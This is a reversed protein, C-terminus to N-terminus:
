FHRLRCHCQSQQAELIMTFRSMNNWQSCHVAHFLHKLHSAYRFQSPKVNSITIGCSERENGSRQKKSDLFPSLRTGNHTLHSRRGGRGFSLFQVKLEFPETQDRLFAGSWWSIFQGGGHQVVLVPCYSKSKRVVHGNLLGGGGDGRRLNLTTSFDVGAKGRTPWTSLSHGYISPTEHFYLQIPM